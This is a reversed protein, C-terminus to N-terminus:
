WDNLFKEDESILVGTFAPLDKEILCRPQWSAGLNARRSDSALAEPRTLLWSVAVTVAGVNM